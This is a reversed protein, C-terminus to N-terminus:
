AGEGSTDEETLDEEDDVEFINEKKFDKELERLKKYVQWLESETMDLLAKTREIIVKPGNLEVLSKHRLYRSAFRLSLHHLELELGMRQRKGDRISKRMLDLIQQDTWDKTEACGKVLLNKRVKGIVSVLSAEVETPLVEIGCNHLKRAIDKYNVNLKM